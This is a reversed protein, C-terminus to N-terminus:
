LVKLGNRKLPLSIEYSVRRVIDGGVDGEGEGGEGGEEKAEWTKILIILMNMNSNLTNIIKKVKTYLFM